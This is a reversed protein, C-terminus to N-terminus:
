VTPRAPWIVAQTETYVEPLERLQQRYAAWAAKLEGSLVSDPLQTWDSESLLRNREARIEDWSVTRDQIIPNGAEDASIVKGEGQAKLLMKHAAREIEVAGEPIKNIMPDFFGKGKLFFIKTASQSM